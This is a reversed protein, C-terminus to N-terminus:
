SRVKIGTQLDPSCVDCCGFQKREEVEQESLGYGLSDAEVKARCETTRLLRKVPKKDVRMRGKHQIYQVMSKNAGLHIIRSVGPLDAGTGAAAETAVVLQTVGVIM